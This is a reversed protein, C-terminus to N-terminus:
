KAGLGPIFGLINGLNNVIPSRFSNFGAKEPNYLPRFRNLFEDYATRREKGHLIDMQKAQEREEAMQAIFQKMREIEQQHHTGQKDDESFASSLLNGGLGMLMPMFDMGKSSQSGKGGKGSGGGFLSGLASGAFGGVAGGIGPAFLNGVVGGIVPLVGQFLKDLFFQPLGTDPNLREEMPISDPMNEWIFYLLDKPMIALDHDTGLGKRRIEELEPALQTEEHMSPVPPLDKDVYNILDRSTKSPDKSNFFGKFALALTEKVKPDSNIMEGLKTYIPINLEREIIEGGQAKNLADLEQSNCHFLTDNESMKDYTKMPQMFEEYSPQGGQAPMQMDETPM